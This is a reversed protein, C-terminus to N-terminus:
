LVNNTCRSIETIEHPCVFCHPLCPKISGEPFNAICEFFRVFTPSCGIGRTRCSFSGSHKAFLFWSNCCYTKVSFNPLNSFAESKTFYNTLKRSQSDWFKTFSFDFHVKQRYSFFEFYLSRTVFFLQSKRYIIVSYWAHSSTTQVKSFFLQLLDIFNKTIKHFGQM